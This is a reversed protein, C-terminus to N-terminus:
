ASPIVASILSTSGFIISREMPLVGRTISLLSSEPSYAHSMGEGFFDKGGFASRFFDERPLENVCAYVQHHSGFQRTHDGDVFKLFDLARADEVRFFHDNDGIVERRGFIDLAGLDNLTAALKSALIANAKKIDTTGPNLM